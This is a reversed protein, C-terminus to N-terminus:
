KVAQNKASWIQKTTKIKRSNYYRIGTIVAGIVSIIGAFLYVYRMGYMFVDARGNVYDIVRYGIKHSMRNYLLLTALTTGSVMGINRVLANISGAIGLKNKTVTSMILSTNPSQFMGNGITMIVIFIMLFILSSKVNLTAIGAPRATAM